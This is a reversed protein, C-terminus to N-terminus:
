YVLYVRRPQSTSRRGEGTLRLTGNGTLDLTDVVLQGIRRGVIGNSAVGASPLYVTGQIDWTGSGNMTATLNNGRAQFLSIGQYTGSAPPTLTIGSGGGTDLRAGNQLFLTVDNGIIQSQGTLDIGQGPSASGIVYTGPQLQVTGGTLRIGGPYYGPGHTGGATIAPLTALGLAVPNPEPVSILPDTMAPAGAVVNLSSSGSACANGVVNIREASITNSSGNTSLACANSSNVQISGSDVALSTNGRMQLAGARNPNLILALPDAPASLRAIAPRGGESTSQGFIPGFFLQLPPNLSGTGCRARVQVADAPTGAPDFFHSDTNTDYTWRGVVIDGMPANETNAALAVGRPCCGAVVNRAATDIAAQRVQSYTTQGVVALKAAGALSAADAAGQLQSRATMTWATDIALGVVGVLIISTVVAYIAVSGRRGRSLDLPRVANSPADIRDV